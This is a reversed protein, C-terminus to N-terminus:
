KSFSVLVARAAQANDGSFWVRVTPMDAADIVMSALGSATGAEYRTIVQNGVSEIYRIIIRTSDDFTINNSGKSVPMNEKTAQLTTVYKANRHVTIERDKVAGLDGFLDATQEDLGAMVQKNEDIYEVERSGFPLLSRDVKGIVVLGGIGMVLFFVVLAALLQERSRTLQGLGKYVAIGIVGGVTNLLVDDIESSGLSLIYQIIELSLSIALLICTKYSLSRKGGTYSVFIGFPIFLAINGLINQLWQDFGISPDTFYEVITYFPILSISRLSVISTSFVATIPITKFLIMHVAVLVYGAFLLYFLTHVIRNGTRKFAM